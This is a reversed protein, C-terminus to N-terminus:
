KKKLTSLYWTFNKSISITKIVLNNSTIFRHIYYITSSRMKFECQYRGFFDTIMYSSKIKMIVEHLTNLVYKRDVKLLEVPKNTKNLSKNNKLVKLKIPLKKWFIYVIITNNPEVILKVLLKEHKIFM